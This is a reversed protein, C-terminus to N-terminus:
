MMPGFLIGESGCKRSSSATELSIAVQQCQTDMKLWDAMTIKGRQKITPWIETRQLFVVCQSEEKSLLDVSLGFNCTIGLTGTM